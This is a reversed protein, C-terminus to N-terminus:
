KLLSNIKQILNSNNPSSANEDVIVGNKNILLFRPISKLDMRNILESEQNILRYHIRPNNILQQKKLANEWQITSDDLNLYLLTFKLSNIKRELEKTLPMYEICPKCWSAWFDVYIVKGINQSLLKEWTISNGLINEFNEDKISEDATLQMRILQKQLFYNKYDSDKCFELFYAILNDTKNGNEIAKKIVRFALYNRVDDTFTRKIFELQKLEKNPHNIFERCKFNVIGWLYNRIISINKSNLNLKLFKDIERDIGEVYFNPLIKTGYTLTYYPSQLEDIFRGEIILQYANIYESSLKYTKILELRRQYIDYIESFIVKYDTKSNYNIGTFPSMILKYKSELDRYVRLNDNIKTSEPIDNRINIKLTDYPFILFPFLEFNRDVTIRLPEKTKIQTIKKNIWEGKIEAYKDEFSLHFEQSGTNKICIYQGSLKLHNNLFFLFFFFLIKRKGVFSNKKMSIYYIQNLSKIIYIAISKTM